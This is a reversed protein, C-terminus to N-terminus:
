ASTEGCGGVFGGPFRSYQSAGVHSGQPSGVIPLGHRSGVLRRGPDRVAASGGQPSCPDTRAPERVTHVPRLWRDQVIGARQRSCRVAWVSEGEARGSRAHPENQHSAMFAAIQREAQDGMWFKTTTGARCAFEWQAETPLRYGSGQLMTVTDGNRSYFPSLREKASLKACFEAADNWNVTEVSVELTRARSLTKRAAQRQISVPESGHSASVRRTNSRPNGPLDAPDPDSQASANREHAFEPAM